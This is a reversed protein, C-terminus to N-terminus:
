LDATSNLEIHDYIKFIRRVCKNIGLICKYVKYAPVLYKGYATSWDHMRNAQRQPQILSLWLGWPFLLFGWQDRSGAVCLLKDLICHLKLEGFSFLIAVMRFVVYEFENSQVLTNYKSEVNTSIHDWSDSQFNVLVAESLPKNGFRVQHYAM